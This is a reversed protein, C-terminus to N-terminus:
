ICKPYFHYSLQNTLLVIGAIFLAEFVFTLNSISIITKNVIEICEKELIFKYLESSFIALLSYFISQSLLYRDELKDKTCKNNEQYKIYYMFIFTSLFLVIYPNHYIIYSDSEHNHILLYYNIIYITALIIYRLSTM